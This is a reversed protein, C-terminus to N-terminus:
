AMVTHGGNHRNSPISISLKAASQADISLHAAQTTPRCRWARRPSTRGTEHLGPAPPQPRHPHVSGAPERDTRQDSRSRRAQRNGMETPDSEPRLTALAPTAAGDCRAALVAAHATARRASDARGAQQYACSAEAVAEAASLFMGITEFEAAVRDLAAGDHAGLATAHDAYSRVLV